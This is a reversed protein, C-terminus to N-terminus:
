GKKEKREDLEVIVARKVYELFQLIIMVDKTDHQVQKDEDYSFLITLSTNRSETKNFNLTTHNLFVTAMGRDM